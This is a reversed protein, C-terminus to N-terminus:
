STKHTVELGRLERNCQWWLEWKCQRAAPYSRFGSACALPRGELRPDVTLTIEATGPLARGSTSRSDPHDQRYWSPGRWIHITIKVTGPLAKWIHITIKATGPLARGSTSPSRPQALFPGSSPSCMAHPWPMSGLLANALKTQSPCIFPTPCTMLTAAQGGAAAAHNKTLLHGM